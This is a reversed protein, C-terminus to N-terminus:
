NRIRYKGRSINQMTGLDLVSYKQRDIFSVFRDAKSKEIVAREDIDCIFEPYNTELSADPIVNGKQKTETMDSYKLQM